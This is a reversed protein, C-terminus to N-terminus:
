ISKIMHMLTISIGTDILLQEKELTLHNHLM